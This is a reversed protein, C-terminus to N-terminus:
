KEVWPQNHIIEDILNLELAQAATLYFDNALKRSWFSKPRKTRAALIEYAKIRDAKSKELLREADRAVGDVSVSGDHALFETSAYSMRYDAAQMLILAMSSCNGYAKIIIYCPSSALIDFMGCGDTVSGGMSNLTVTIPDKSMHELITVSRQLRSASLPGISGPEEDESGDVTLDITRSPIYLGHDYFTDIHNSYKNSM